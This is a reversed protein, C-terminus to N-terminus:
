QLTLFNKMASRLRIGYYILLIGSVVLLLMGTISVYHTPAASVNYSYILNYLGMFTLLVGSVEILWFIFPTLFTKV